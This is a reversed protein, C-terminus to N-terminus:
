DLSHVVSATGGVPRIEYLDLVGDVLRPGGISTRATGLVAFGAFTVASEDVNVRPFTLRLYIDFGDPASQVLTSIEYGFDCRELSVDNISTGDVELSVVPEGKVGVTDIVASIGKGALEFHNAPELAVADALPVPAPAVVAPRTM